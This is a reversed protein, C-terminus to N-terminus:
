ADGALHHLSSTCKLLFYQMITFCYQMREAQKISEAWQQQKNEFKSM